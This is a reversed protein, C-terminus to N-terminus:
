IQLTVMLYDMQVELHVEAVKEMQVDVEVVVVEVVEVMQVDVEVVVEVEVM